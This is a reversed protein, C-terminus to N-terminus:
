VVGALQNVVRQEKESLVANVYEVARLHLLYALLYLGREVRQVLGVEPVSPRDIRALVILVTDGHRPRTVCRRAKHQYEVQGM